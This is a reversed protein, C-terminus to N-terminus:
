ILRIGEEKKFEIRRAELEIPVNASGLAFRNVWGFLRAESRLAESETIEKGM